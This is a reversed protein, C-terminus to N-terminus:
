ALPNTMPGNMWPHSRVQDLSLRDHPHSFLMRQLLDMANESITCKWVRLIPALYGRSMKNFVPDIDNPLRWPNVGLLMIYLIVGVAWLDVPLSYGLGDQAIIEPAM